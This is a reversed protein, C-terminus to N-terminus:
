DSRYGYLCGTGNGWTLNNPFCRYCHCVKNEQAGFDSCITVSAMFNFSVQEKSSFNHGVETWNLETVWDHRVGQSGMSQLMGPKGTWWWSGSSLSRDRSDTIGDLWRMRQRGRRRGEIRGPMLTKEFSDPTLCEPFGGRLSGVATSPPQLGRERESAGHSSRGGPRIKWAAGRSIGTTDAGPASCVLSYIYPISETDMWEWM